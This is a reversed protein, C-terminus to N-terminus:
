QNGESEESDLDKATTGLARAIRKLTEPQAGRKGTEIRSLHSPSVNVLEAFRRLGYGLQERKSRIKAGRTQVVPVSHSALPLSLGEPSTFPFYSRSAEVQRSGMQAIFAVRQL